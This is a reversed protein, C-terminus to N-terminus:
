RIKVTHHHTISMLLIRTVDLIFIRTKNNLKIVSLIIMVIRRVTNLTQIILDRNRTLISKTNFVFKVIREFDETLEDRM